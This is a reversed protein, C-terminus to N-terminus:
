SLVVSITFLNGKVNENFRGQFIFLANPCKTNEDSLKFELWSRLLISLFTMEAGGWTPM